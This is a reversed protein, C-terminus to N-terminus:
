LTVSPKYCLPKSRVGSDLFAKSFEENDKSSSRLDQLAEFSLGMAGSGANLKLTPLESKLHVSFRHSEITHTKRPLGFCELM